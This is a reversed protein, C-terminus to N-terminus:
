HQIQPTAAPIPSPDFFSNVGSGQSRIGSELCRPNLLPIVRARLYDPQYGGFHGGNHGLKRDQPQWPHHILKGTQEPDSCHPQWFGVRGAAVSHIRDATGIVRMTLGMFFIDHNSYFVHLRQKVSSLAPGVDYQPSVSPALFVAGEVVDPPVNELAALLVMAGASHGFLYIPRDPHAAHFEVLIEALKKGACRAYPYDIQDAIVRRKGHSWDYTIVDIPYGDREVVNRLYQSPYQFNGAGDAVFVTAPGAPCLIPKPQIRDPNMSVCGSLLPVALLWGGSIRARVGGM